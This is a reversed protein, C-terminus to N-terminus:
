SEMFKKFKIATQKKREETVHTYINLTTQIDSHGLRESVDKIDVGAEFLLSAHTHRLAHIKIPQLQQNAPLEKNIRAIAQHLWARPKSDPIMKGKSSNFVLHGNGKTRVGLYLNQKAQTIKWHKLLSITTPDLDIVRKSKTTKPSSVMPRNNDGRSYTRSIAITEGTFSIDSWRLAIAEGKRMGTYALLWLFMYPQPYKNKDIGSFLQNLEQKTYFYKTTTEDVFRRRPLNVKDFPNTKMEDLSIAYDIVKSAYNKYRKFTTLGDNFWQNVIKQCYASTLKSLKVDGFYPLVHALMIRKTTARTSEKVTHKYQEFWLNFADQFTVINSTHLGHEEIEIQLRSLELEAEKKSKFGSKRVRIRKGTVPDAGADYRFSYRRQNSKNRYENFTAM